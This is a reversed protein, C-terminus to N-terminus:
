GFKFFQDRVYDSFTLYSVSSNELLASSFADKEELDIDGSVALVTKCSYDGFLNRYIDSNIYAYAGVYNEAVASM